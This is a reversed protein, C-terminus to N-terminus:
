RSGDLAIFAFLGDDNVLPCMPHVRPGGDARVTALFGLGVGVDYLLARGDGAMAPESRCFEVWSVVRHM